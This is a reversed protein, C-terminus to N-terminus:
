NIHEALRREYTRKKETKRITERTKTFYLLIKNVPYGISPFRHDFFCYIQYQDISSWDITM